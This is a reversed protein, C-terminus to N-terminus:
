DSMNLKSVKEKQKIKETKICRGKRKNKVMKKKNFGEM